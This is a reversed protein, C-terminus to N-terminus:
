SKPVPSANLTVPSEAGSGLEVLNLRSIESTVELPLMTEPTVQVM